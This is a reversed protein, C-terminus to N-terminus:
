VIQKISLIFRLKNFLGTLKNLKAAVSNIHKKFDLNNDLMVGLCMVENSKKLTANNLNITKEVNLTLKNDSLYFSVSDIDRQFFFFKMHIKQPQLATDDDYLTITSCKCQQRIDNVYIFFLLPGLVSVQPM